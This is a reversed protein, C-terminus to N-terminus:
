NYSYMGYHVLHMYQWRISNIQRTFSSTSSFPARITGKPSPNSSTTQKMKATGDPQSMRVPCKGGTALDYGHLHIGTHGILLNNGGHDVGINIRAYTAWTRTGITETAM